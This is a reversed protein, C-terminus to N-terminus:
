RRASWGAPPKVSDQYSLWPAYADREFQQPWRRNLFETEFERAKSQVRSKSEFHYLVCTGVWVIRLGAHRVKLSLDVDNFNVPVIESLGGVQEYVDRRMAACAATVGSCERNIELDEFPVPEDRRWRYSHLPHAPGSGSAYLHGGHQVTGDDYLLKAGTMGVQPETLPAVLDELWGDSVVETDDNLLVIVDGSARLFGLNCKESFSFPRNYELTILRPGAVERLTRLVDAPTAEDYVVIIELNGHSTRALASRVAEVVFSRQEGRVAGVQGCTPIIISVRTEARLRRELRQFGPSRGAVVNVDIGLRGAHEQVAARAEAAAPATDRGRRVVVAPVHVVHRAREGARLVLDYHAAAADGSRYTGVDRVLATRLACASGIYDHHRLREPSWDPKRAMRHESAVGGADEDGYVLDTEADRAADAMRALAQPDLTDAAEVILVFEGLALEVARNVADAHSIAASLGLSRIRSDARGTASGRCDLVEWDPFTQELVADTASGPDPLIISFLPRGPSM